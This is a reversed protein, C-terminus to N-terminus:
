ILTPNADELHKLEVTTRNFCFMIRKYKDSTYPKLEV